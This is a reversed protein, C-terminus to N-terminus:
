NTRIKLEAILFKCSNKNSNKYLNQFKIYEPSSNGNVIYEDIDLLIYVEDEQYMQLIYDITTDKKIYEVNKTKLNSILNAKEHVSKYKNIFTLISEKSLIGEQFKTIKKEIENIDCRGSRVEILYDALEKRINTEEIEIHQVHKEIEDLTKHQIHDSIIQADNYLDNLIKKS